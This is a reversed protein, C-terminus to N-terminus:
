VLVCCFELHGVGFLSRELLMRGLVAAELPANVVFVTSAVVRLGEEGELLVLVVVQGVGVQGIHPHLGETPALVFELNLILMQVRVLWDLGVVLHHLRLLGYCGRLGAGLFHPDGLASSTCYHAALLGKTLAERQELLLLALWGFGILHLEGVVQILVQLLQLVLLLLSHLLAVELLRRGGLALGAEVLDLAHSPGRRGEVICRGRENRLSGM